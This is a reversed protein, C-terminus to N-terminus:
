RRTRIILMHARNNKSIRAAIANPWSRGRPCIISLTLHKVAGACCYASSPCCHDLPYCSIPCAGGDCPGQCDAPGADGCPDCGADAATNGGDAAGGDIREAADAGNGALPSHHCGVCCAAPVALALAILHRSEGSM